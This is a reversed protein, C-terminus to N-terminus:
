PLMRVLHCIRDSRRRDLALAKTPCIPGDTVAMVVPRLTAGPTHDTMRRFDFISANDSDGAFVVSGEGM